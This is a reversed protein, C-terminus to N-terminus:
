IQPVVQRYVTAVSQGSDESFRSAFKGILNDDAYKRQGSYWMRCCELVKEKATKSFAGNSQCISFVRQKYEDGNQKVTPTIPPSPIPAPAKQAPAIHATAAGAPIQALEDESFDSMDIQQAPSLTGAQTSTTPAPQEAAQLKTSIENVHYEYVPCKGDQGIKIRELWGANVLKNLIRNAKSDKLKSGRSVAVLNQATCKFNGGANNLLFAYVGLTEFDISRAIDNEAHDHQSFNGQRKGNKDRPANKNLKINGNNKNEM